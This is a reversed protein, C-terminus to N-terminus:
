INAISITICVRTYRLMNYLGTAELQYGKIDENFAELCKGNAIASGLTHM